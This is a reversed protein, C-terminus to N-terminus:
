PLPLEMQEPCSRLPQIDAEMNEGRLYQYLMGHINFMVACMVSEINTDKALQPYGDRLMWLDMVHRKLSKFYEAIPMGRKWNDSDRLQGDSQLRHEHMYRAFRELVIPSLFGAYDLKGADTDRTAGTDFNRVKKKVRQDEGLTEPRREVAPQTAGFKRLAEEFDPQQGPLANGQGVRGYASQQQTSRSPIWAKCITCQKCPPECSLCWANWDPHECIM